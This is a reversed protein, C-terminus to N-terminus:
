FPCLIKNPFTQPMMKTNEVKWHQLQSYPHRICGQDNGQLKKIESILNRWWESYELIWLYTEKNPNM